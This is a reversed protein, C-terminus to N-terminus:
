KIDLFNNDPLLKKITKLIENKKILIESKLFPSGEIYINVGKIKINKKNIKQSTINSISEKVVTEIEEKKNIIKKFKDLFLSIKNYDM